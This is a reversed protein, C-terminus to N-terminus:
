YEPNLANQVIDLAMSILWKSDKLRENQADLLLLALRLFIFLVAVQNIVSYARELGPVDELVEVILSKAVALWNALDQLEDSSM